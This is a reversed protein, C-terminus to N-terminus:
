LQESDISRRSMLPGEGRTKKTLRGGYLHVTKDTLTIALRINDKLADFIQIDVINSKFTVTHGVEGNRTNRIQVTKKYATFCWEDNIQGVVEPLVCPVSLTLKNDHLNWVSLKDSSFVVLTHLCPLYLAREIRAQEPHTFFQPTMKTESTLDWLKIQSTYDYSVFKGERGIAAPTTLTYRNLEQGTMERTTLDLIVFSDLWEHNGDDDVILDTSTAIVTDQSDCSSMFSIWGDDEDFPIEELFALDPISLIYCM